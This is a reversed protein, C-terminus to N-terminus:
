VPSRFCRLRQATPKKVTRRTKSLTWKGCGKAKPGLRALTKSYAHERVLGQTPGWGLGNNPDSSAIRDTGISLDCPKLHPRFLSHNRQLAFTPLWQPTPNKTTRGTKSLTRKRRGRAKPGLRLFPNSAYFGLIRYHLQCPFTSRSKLFM